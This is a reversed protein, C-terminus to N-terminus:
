SSRRERFIYEFREYGFVGSIRGYGGRVEIWSERGVKKFFYDMSVIIRKSVM